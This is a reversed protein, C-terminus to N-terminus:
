PLKSVGLEKLTARDQDSRDVLREVAAEDMWPLELLKRRMSDPFPKDAREHKPRSRWSRHMWFYDEPRNRVMNEIGLRYRASLYFLPDPQSFYESPRIVDEIDIVFRFGDCDDYFSQREAGPLDEPHVRRAQGVIINARAQMALLGVSKYTSAMRGFFPVFLGRDGGNQDAVFGIRHGEALLGPLRQVAGFKDILGLGRSERSERVWRDLPKLDLPRYLAHLPIDLIGMTSGLVEWNGNHGTILILPAPDLMTQLARGADEFRIHRSWGDHTLLRPSLLVEGALMALHEYCGIAIRERWEASSDPYAVELHRRSRDMHKRGLRSQAFRNGIARAHRMVSSPSGLMPVTLASRFAWYVAHQAPIPLHHIKLAVVM